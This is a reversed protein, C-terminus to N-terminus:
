NNQSNENGNFCVNGCYTNLSPNYTLVSSAAQNIPLQSNIADDQMINYGYRGDPNMVQTPLDDNNEGENWGMYFNISIDATGERWADIDSYSVDYIDDYMALSADYAANTKNKEFFGRRSNEYRDFYPIYSADPLWDPNWCHGPPNDLDVSECDQGFEGAQYKSDCIINSTDPHTCHYIYKDQAYQLRFKNRIENVAPTVSVPTVSIDVPTEPSGKTWSASKTEILTGDEQTIKIKVAYHDYDQTYMSGNTFPQIRIVYPEGSSIDYSCEWFNNGPGSYFMGGNGTIPANATATSRTSNTSADYLTIPRSSDYTDGLSMFLGTFMLPYDHNDYQTSDHEIRIKQTILEGSNPLYLEDFRKMLYGSSADVLEDWTPITPDQIVSFSADIRSCSIDSSEGGYWQCWGVHGSLDRRWIYPIIEYSATIYFKFPEGDENYGYVGSLNNGVGKGYFTENVERYSKFIKYLIYVLLIVLIISIIQGYSVRMIYIM